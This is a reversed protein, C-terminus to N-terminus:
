QRSSDGIQTEDLPGFARGLLRMGVSRVQIVVAAIRAIDLSKGIDHPRALCQIQVHDPENRIVGVDLRPLAHQCGRKGQTGFVAKYIVLQTQSGQEGIAEVLGVIIAFQGERHTYM